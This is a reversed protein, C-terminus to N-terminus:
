VTTPTNWRACPLALGHSDILALGSASRLAAVTYRVRDQQLLWRAHPSSATPVPAGGWTFWRESPDRNPVLDSRDHIKRTSATAAPCFRTWSLRPRLALEPLASLPVRVGPLRCYRSALVLYRDRKPLLRNAPLRQGVILETANGRALLDNQGNM